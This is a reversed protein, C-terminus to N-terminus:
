EKQTQPQAAVPEYDGFPKGTPNFLTQIRRYQDLQNDIPNTDM